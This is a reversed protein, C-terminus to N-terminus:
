NVALPWLSDDAVEPWHLTYHILSTHARAVMTGINREAIANQHHAGVGSYWISQPPKGTDAAQLLHDQFDKATFIGNDAHYNQIAVGHEHAMREFLVKAKITEIAGLSVLNVIFILGSAHDVFIIGGKYMHEEKTHGRSSELRGRRSSVFQDISVRQGPQLDGAAIKGGERKPLVPM